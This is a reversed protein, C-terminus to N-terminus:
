EPASATSRRPAPAPPPQAPLPPRARHAGWAAAAVGGLGDHTLSRLVRATVYDPPDCLRHVYPPERLLRRLVTCVKRAKVPGCRHVGKIGDSSDGVLAKYTSVERPERLRYHAKVAAVDWLKKRVDDFVRVREDVLQHFDHDSSVIITLGDRPVACLAGIVSDAEVGPLRVVPVGAARLLEALDTLQQHFAVEPDWFAQRRERRRWDLRWPDGGSPSPAGTRVLAPRPLRRHAKYRPDIATKEAHGGDFAVVLGAPNFRALLARLMSLSGYVVGSPRGDSIQLEAQTHRARHALNNADILLRVTGM